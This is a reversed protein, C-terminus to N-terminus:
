FGAGLTVRRFHPRAATSINVYLYGGGIQLFEGGAPQPSKTSTSVIHQIPAWAGTVTGAGAARAPQPKYCVQLICFAALFMIGIFTFIYKRMM